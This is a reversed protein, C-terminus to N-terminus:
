KRRYIYFNGYDQKVILNTTDIQSTKGYAKCELKIAKTSFRLMLSYSAIISGDLHLVNLIIESRRQSASMAALKEDTASYKDYLEELSVHYAAPENKKIEYTSIGDDKFNEYISGFINEIFKVFKNEDPGPVRNWNFQYQLNDRVETRGPLDMVYAIENCIKITKNLQDVTADTLVPTERNQTIYARTCLKIGEEALLAGLYTRRPDSGAFDSHEDSNVNLIAEILRKLVEYDFIETQTQEPLKRAILSLDNIARISQDKLRKLKLRPNSDNKEVQLWSQETLERRISKHLM